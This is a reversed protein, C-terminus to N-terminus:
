RAPSSNFTGIMSVTLSVVCSSPPIIKWKLLTDAAHMTFVTFGSEPQLTALYCETPYSVSIAAGEHKDEERVQSEM